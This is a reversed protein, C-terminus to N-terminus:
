DMNSSATEAPPDIKEDKALTLCGQDLGAGMALASRRAFGFANLSLWGHDTPDVTLRPTQLAALDGSAGQAPDSAIWFRLMSIGGQWRMALSAGAIGAGIINVKSPLTTQGRGSLRSSLIGTIRHRKRGFGDHRTIDFGAQELGRRVRVLRRLVPANPM